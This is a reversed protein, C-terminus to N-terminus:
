SDHTTLLLIKWSGDRRYLNYSFTTEWLTEGRAGKYAWRVTALASNSGLSQIDLGLIDAHTFGKTRYNEDIQAFLQETDKRASNVRVVGM